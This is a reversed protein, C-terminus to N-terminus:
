TGQALVHAEQYFLRYGLRPGAHSMDVPVESPLYRGLETDRPPDRETFLRSVQMSSPALLHILLLRTRKL